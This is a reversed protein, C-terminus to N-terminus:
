SKVLLAYFFGDMGSDGPLIQHGAGRPSGFPLSITAPKADHSEALFTDIQGENEASLVSCTAYLLTGHRALLPWLSELLERQRAGATRLAGDNRHLKIDPHRRIVGTASCPADLLIRDFTVESGPEACGRMSGPNPCHVTVVEGGPLEVDALFRKYRRLLRGELHAEPDISVNPTSM